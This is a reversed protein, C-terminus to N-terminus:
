NSYSKIKYSDVYPSCQEFNWTITNTIRKIVILFTTRLKVHNKILDDRVSGEV